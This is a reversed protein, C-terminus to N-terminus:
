LNIVEWNQGDFNFPSRGTGIHYFYKKVNLNLQKILQFISTDVTHIESAKHLVGVWDFLSDTMPSMRVLPLNTQVPLDFSGISCDTNCFAFNKPLKLKNELAKERDLDRSIHFNSYRYSYNFEMQDYFSKEWKPLHCHNFGIKIYNDKQYMPACDNDGYVPYLEINIDRYLQSVSSVNHHKVALKISKYQNVFKDYLHRVIANCAIHDGLGLHHHIFFYDSDSNVM